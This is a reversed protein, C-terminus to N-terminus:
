NNISSGVDDNGMQDDTIIPDEDIVVKLKGKVRTEVENVRTGKEWVVVNVETPSMDMGM